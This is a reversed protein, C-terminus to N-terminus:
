DSDSIGVDDLVVVLQSLGQADLTASQRPLIHILTVKTENTQFQPQASGARAEHQPSSEPCNIPQGLVVAACLNRPSQQPALLEVTVNRYATAGGISTSHVYGASQLRLQGNVVKQQSDPMGPARVTIESDSMVISIADVDHKHLLVSDHPPVYVSYVNVYDNHFALHHHPESKLPIVIQGQAECAFSIFLVTAMLPHRSNMCPGTLRAAKLTTKTPQCQILPVNSEM